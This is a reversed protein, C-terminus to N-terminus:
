QLMFLVDNITKSCVIMIQRVTTYGVAIPLRGIMILHEILKTGNCDKEEDYGKAEQGVGGHEEEEEPM